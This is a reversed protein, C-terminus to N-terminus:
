LANIFKSIVTALRRPRQVPIDHVTNNFSVVQGQALEQAATKVQARRQQLWARNEDTAMFAPLLLTPCKVLPYLERPRQEWLARLIKMHNAHSLRRRITQAPTIFFNALISAEVWPSWRKGVFQKIGAKFEALPMDELYMPALEQETREWTMEPNAQIDFFGGDMLILGRTREPYHAAFYLAVSGGWSHGAIVARKIKMADLFAKLDKAITAFDYGEDPKATDGHGRQDLVLVRFSEALLPALRDFIHAQSSLGHLLILPTGTRSWARYHFKLGGLEVFKDRVTDM